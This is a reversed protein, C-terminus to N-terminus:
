CFAPTGPESPRSENRFHGSVTSRDLYTSLHSLYDAFTNQERPVWLALVQLHYLDCYHLIRTLVIRSAPDKCNGKNIAWTSSENDNIWILIVGRITCTILYDLLAHLEFLMSNNPDDLPEEWSKSVYQIDDSNLFSHFYGFGDTGSADSQVLYISTPNSLLTESSIIRFVLGTSDGNEWSLLLSIWWQFDSRLINMSVPYSAKYHKLYNWFSHIHLRGSQLIEAFWNLKGCIPRILHYDLHKGGILVVLYIELELRFSKAVVADIRVTMTTSDILIGLFLVQQGYKYKESQMTFGISEFVSSMQSMQALVQKLQQAATFWDDVIMSNPIGM